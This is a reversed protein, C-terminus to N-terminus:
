DVVGLAQWSRGLDAYVLRTGTVDIFVLQGTLRHQLAVDAGSGGFLDRSAEVVDLSPDGSQIPLTNEGMLAGDSIRWFTLAGTVDNRFMVDNRSDGDYDAVGIVQKSPDLTPGVQIEAGGFPAIVLGPSVTTEPTPPPPPFLLALLLSLLDEPPAPPPATVTRDARWLLEPVDDGVFDGIGVLTGGSPGPLLALRTVRMGSVSWLEAIGRDPGALAIEQAGDGDFDVLGVFDLSALAGDFGVAGDLAENPIIDAIVNGSSADRWLEDSQGDGNLDGSAVLQWSAPPATRPAGVSGDSIARRRMEGCDACRLLFSGPAALAPPAVFSVPDSAESDHTQWLSGAADYGIGRVFLSVQEGFRSADVTVVPTQVLQEGLYAGGDRSVYVVYGGIVDAPAPAWAFKAELVGVREAAHSEFAASAIAAAALSFLIFRYDM